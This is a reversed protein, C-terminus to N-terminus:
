LWGEGPVPRLQFTAMLQKGNAHERVDINIGHECLMARLSGTEFERKHDPDPHAGGRPVVVVCPAYPKCLRRVNLLAADPDDLHELIQGLFAADYGFSGRKAEIDAHIFDVRVGEIGLSRGHAIAAPSIEWVHWTSPSDVLYGVFGCQGGVDIVCTCGNLARAAEMTPHGEWFELTLSEPNTEHKRLFAADAAAAKEEFTM